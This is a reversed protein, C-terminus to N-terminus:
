MGLYSSSELIKKLLAKLTEKEDDSLVSLVASPESAPKETSEPVAKLTILAARRDSTDRSRAILDKEIRAAIDVVGANDLIDAAADNM